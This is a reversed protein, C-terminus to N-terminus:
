GTRWMKGPTGGYKINDVKKNVRDIVADSDKYGKKALHKKLKPHLDGAQEPTIYGARSAAIADEASPTHGTHFDSNNRGM